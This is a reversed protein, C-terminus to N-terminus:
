DTIAKLKQTVEFPNNSAFFANGVVVSDAGSIYIEDANDMTVGGDVQIMTGEKVLQRGDSIKSLCSHILKQGSFGPEVTMILLLDIYDVYPIISNINTAPKISLGAKVGLSKIEKLTALVDTCSEIHITILSAGAATFQKVYNIPEVIMLHVDLPINTIAKIDAVMKMGFSINPVFVGDMVDCHIYDVQAQEMLSIAKDIKTFDASLISPSVKM